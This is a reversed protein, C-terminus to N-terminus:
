IYITAVLIVTSEIDALRSSFSRHVTDVVSPNCVRTTGCRPFSENVAMVIASHHLVILFDDRRM